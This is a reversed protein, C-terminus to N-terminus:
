ISYNYWELIRILSLCIVSVEKMGGGITKLQISGGVPIHLEKFIFGWFHSILHYRTFQVVKGIYHPRPASYFLFVLSFFIYNSTILNSNIRLNLVLVLKM